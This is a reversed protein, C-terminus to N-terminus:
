AGQNGSHAVGLSPPARKILQVASNPVTLAKRTSQGAAQRFHACRRTPAPRATFHLHKPPMVMRAFSPQRLM